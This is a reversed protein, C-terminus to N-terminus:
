LIQTNEVREFTITYAELIGEAGANELSTVEIYGTRITHNGTFVKLHKWEKAYLLETTRNSIYHIKGGIFKELRRIPIIVTNSDEM